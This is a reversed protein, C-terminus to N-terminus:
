EKKRLGCMKCDKVFHQNFFTCQLCEWPALDCRIPHSPLEVDMPTAADNQSPLAGTLATGAFGWEATTPIADQFEPDDPQEFIRIEITEEPCIGVERMTAGDILLEKNKYFLQQYIPPADFHDMLQLKLDQVQTQPTIRTMVWREGRLRRSARGKDICSSLLERQPAKICKSQESEAPESSTLDDTQVPHNSHAPSKYKVIHIDASEFSLLRDLRCDWCTAPDSEIFDDILSGMSFEPLLRICIEKGNSIQYISKLLTWEEETLFTINKEKANDTKLSFLLGAHDRCFITAMDISTPPSPMKSSRIFDRWQTLFTTPVGFYHLTAEFRLKQKNALRNFMAMETRARDRLPLDQQTNYASEELCAVCQLSNEQPCSLSPFLVRLFEYAEASILMRRSSNLSLADHQCWVDGWYDETVPSATSNGKKWDSFWAKSIFYSSQSANQQKRSRVPILSILKEVDEKHQKNLTIRQKIEDYCDKCIDEVHLIPVVSIGLKQLLEYGTCSIRKTTWLKAPHLRKHVCLAEENSVTLSVANQAQGAEQQFLDNEESDAVVEKLSGSASKICSELFSARQKIIAALANASIYVAPTKDNSVNWKLFILHWADREEQYASVALENRENLRQVNCTFQRNDLEIKTRIDQQISELIQSHPSLTDSVTERPILKGDVLKKQSLVYTLQYASNSSFVLSASKADKGKQDTCDSVSSGSVGCSKSLDLIIDKKIRPKKNKRPSDSLSAEVSSIDDEELQFSPVNMLTVNEDDFDIWSSHRKSYVRQVYHGSNASYGKHLLVAHLEYIVSEMSSNLIFPSMDIWQPFYIRKNIKKKLLLKQDFQFRTIQFNLIKPLRLLRIHRSADQKSGCGTCMYQNEGDLIEDALYKYICDLLSSCNSVDMELEQFSEKKSSKSMCNRCTTVYMHEGRMLDLIVTKSTLNPRVELIASDVVTIFLKSFELADQQLHPNLGILQILRDPSISSRDSLSLQAFVYALSHLTSGMQSHCAYKMITSQIDSNHYWSQLLTNLYCTAGLNKLGVPTRYCGNQDGSIHKKSLSPHSKHLWATQGLHNTCNPNDRCKAPTCKLTSAKVAPLHEPQIYKSPCYQRDAIPTLLAVTEFGKEWLHLDKKRPLQDINGESHQM